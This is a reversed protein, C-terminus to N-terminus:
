WVHDEASKVAISDGAVVTVDRSEATAAANPDDDREQVVAFPSLEHCSEIAEAPSDIRNSSSLANIRDIREQVVKVTV